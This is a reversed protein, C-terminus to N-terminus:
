NDTMRFAGNVSHGDGGAVRPRLPELLGASKKHDLKDRVSPDAATPTQASAGSSASFGFPKAVMGLSACRACFEKALGFANLSL